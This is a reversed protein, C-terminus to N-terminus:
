DGPSRKMAIRQEPAPLAARQQQLLSLVEPGCSNVAVRVFGHQEYYPGNWPLHAYTTLWLPKGDSWAIARTLLKSGVGRRMYDPHVSIQDLYPDGDAFGMVIFGIVTDATDSAVFARQGAIADAWRAAEALAFPHDDAFEFVIGRQAYLASADEDIAILTRLESPRAERIHLSNM